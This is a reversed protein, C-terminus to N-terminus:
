NAIGVYFWHGRVRRFVSHEHHCYENLDDDVYFANFEVLGDDGRQTKSVIELRSWRTTRVSLEDAQLGVRKLPVWTSLLYDGYGGLAYATYRSRMLQVPTKAYSNGDLLPQCCHERLKGSSCLCLQKAFSFKASSSTQDRNSM